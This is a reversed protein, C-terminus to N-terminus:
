KYEEMNVSRSYVCVFSVCTCTCTCTYTCTCQIYSQIHVHVHIGALLDKFAIVNSIRASEHENDVTGVLTFTLHLINSNVLSSKDRLLM